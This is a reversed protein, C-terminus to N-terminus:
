VGGRIRGSVPFWYDGQRLHYHLGRLIGPGSTSLNVQVDHWDREPFWTKRFTELFWGRGDGHVELRVQRVGRILASDRIEVM